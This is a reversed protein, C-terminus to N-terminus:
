IYKKVIMEVMKKDNDGYFVYVKKKENRMSQKLNKVSNILIIPSQM